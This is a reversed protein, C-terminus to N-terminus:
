LRKFSSGYIGSRNQIIGVKGWLRYTAWIRYTAGTEIKDEMQEINKEMQNQM